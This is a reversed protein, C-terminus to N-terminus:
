MTCIANTSSRPSPFGHSCRSCSAIVRVGSRKLDSLQRWGEAAKRHISHSGEICDKWEEGHQDQWWIIAVFFWSRACCLEKMLETKSASGFLNRDNRQLFTQLAVCRCYLWKDTDRVTVADKMGSTVFQWRFSHCSSKNLNSPKRKHLKEVVPWGCQTEEM